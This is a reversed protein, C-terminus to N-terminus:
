PLRLFFDKKLPGAVLLPPHYLGSEFKDKAFFAESDSLALNSPPARLPRDMLFFKKAAETM